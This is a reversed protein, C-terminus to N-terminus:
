YRRSLELRYENIISGGDADRFHMREFDIARDIEFEIFM